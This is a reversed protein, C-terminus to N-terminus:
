SYKYIFAHLNSKSAQLDNNTAAAKQDQIGFWVIWLKQGMQSFFIDHKIM